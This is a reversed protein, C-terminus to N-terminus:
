NLREKRKATQLIMFAIVEGIGQYEEEINQSESFIEKLSKNYKSINQNLYTQAVRDKKEPVSELLKYIDGIKNANSGQPTTKQSLWDYITVRSVGFIKAWETKNFGFIRDIEAFQENYNKLVVPITEQQLEDEVVYGSAKSEGKGLLGNKYGGRPTTIFHPSNKKDSERNLFDKLKISGDSTYETILYTGAEKTTLNRVRLTENIAM